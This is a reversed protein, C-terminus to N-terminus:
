GSRYWEVYKAVGVFGIVTVLMWCWSSMRISNNGTALSASGLAFVMSAVTGFLHWLIRKMQHYNTLKVPTSARNFRVVPKAPPTASDALAVPKALAKYLEPFFAAGHNWPSNVM